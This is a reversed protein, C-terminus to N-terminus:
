GFASRFSSFHLPAHVYTVTIRHGLFCWTGLHCILPFRELDSVQKPKLRWSWRDEFSWCLLFNGELRDFRDLIFDVIRCHSFHDRNNRRDLVFAGDSSCYHWSYPLRSCPRAKSGQPPKQRRENRYGSLAKRSSHTVVLARVM